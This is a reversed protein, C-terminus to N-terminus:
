AAIPALRLGIGFGRRRCCYRLIAPVFRDHKRLHLRKHAAYYNYSLASLIYCYLQIQLIGNLRHKPYIVIAYFYEFHFM